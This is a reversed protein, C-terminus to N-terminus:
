RTNTLLLLLQQKNKKQLTAEQRRRVEAQTYATLVSKVLKSKCANLQTTADRKVGRVGKLSNSYRTVSPLLTKMVYKQREALRLFDLTLQTNKGYVNRRRVLCRVFQSATKAVAAADETTSPM